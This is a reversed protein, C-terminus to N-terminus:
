RQSAGAGFCYACYDYGMALADDTRAFYYRRDVRIEAVQCRPQLNELDHIERTRTNGLYRKAWPPLPPATPTSTAATAPAAAPARDECSAVETDIQHEGASVLAASASTARAEEVDLRPVGDVIHDLRFDVVFEVYERGDIFELIDSRHIRGGLTLDLAEDHLWPSLFAVLDDNLIQAYLGHDRGPKLRVGFRARIEEYSPNAVAVAAFDSALPQLFGRIAELTALSLRPRLPDVANRNRLNPVVVVKVHGPALETAGTTHSICKAKYVEPFRDLVLREYDFLAVAQGKHRLREAVRPRFADDTEATRAGFSAYPQAVAKIAANRVRLKAITGARLPAALHGPDNGADRFVATVAQTHIGIRQPIAAAHAPV